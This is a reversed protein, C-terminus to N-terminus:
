NKRYCHHHRQTSIGVHGPRNGPCTASVSFIHRTTWPLHANTFGQSPHPISRCLQLDISWVKETVGSEREIGQDPHCSRILEGGVQFWAQTLRRWRHSSSLLFHLRETTDSQKHGWPGYGALSRRGHFKGPLFVPTPQWKRRWSIKGVWPDFGPRRCQLCVRQWRLWWPLGGIVLLVWWNRGRM